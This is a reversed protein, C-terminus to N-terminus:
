SDSDDEASQAGIADDPDGTQEPHRALPNDETAQLDEPLQEESIGMEDGDGQEAATDQDTDDGM